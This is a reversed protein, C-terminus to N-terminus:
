SGGEGGEGGGKKKNKHNRFWTHIRDVDFHEKTEKTFDDAVKQRVEKSHLNRKTFEVELFSTQVVSFSYRKRKQGTVKSKSVFSQSPIPIFFLPSVKQFKKRLKWLHKDQSM